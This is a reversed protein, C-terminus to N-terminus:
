FSVALLTRAIDFAQALGHETAPNTPATVKSRIESESHIGMPLLTASPCGLGVVGIRAKKLSEALKVVVRIEADWKSQSAKTFDAIVVVSLDDGTGLGSSTVAAKFLACTEDCALIRRM